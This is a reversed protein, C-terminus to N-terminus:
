LGKEEGEAAKARRIAEKYERDAEDCYAGIGWALFVLVAAVGIFALCFSLISAGLVLM